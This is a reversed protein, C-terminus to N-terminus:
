LTSLTHEFQEQTIEGSAYRRKLIEEPMAAPPPAPQGPRLSAVAWVVLAIALFSLGMMM